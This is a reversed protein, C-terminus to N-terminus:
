EISEKEEELLEGSKDEPEKEEKTAAIYDLDLVYTLQVLIAYFPDKGAPISNNTISRKPYYDTPLFVGGRLAIKINDFSYAIKMEVETGMYQRSDSEMLFLQHLLIEFPDIHFKEQMRVFIKSNTRDVFTVSDERKGYDRFHYFYAYPSTHYGKIGWLLMGGMSQHKMSAFDQNFYGLSFISDMTYDSFAFPLKYNLSVGFSNYERKGDFQNDVGVSYAFTADIIGYSEMDKHLRIGSMSLHDNDSRNLDNRGNQSLDAGGENNAGYRIFYTFPKLVLQDLLNYRLNGGVRFAFTDGRFNEIEEDDKKVVSYIGAYEPRFGISVVDGMLNLRLFDIIDYDIQLGDIVDSFFFDTETDGISYKYRGFTFSVEEIPFFIFYLRNFLIPNQGEDRGQFNDTGWYGQRSIDLFFETKKYQTNFRLTLIGYLVSARDDTDLFDVSQDRSFREEDYNLFDNNDLHLFNTTFDISFSYIDSVVLFSFLCFIFRLLFLIM